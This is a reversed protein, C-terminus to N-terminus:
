ERGLKSLIKEIQNQDFINMKQLVDKITTRGLYDEIIDSAGESSYRIMQGGESRFVQTQEVPKVSNSVKTLNSRKIYPLNVIINDQKIDDKIVDIVRFNYKEVL